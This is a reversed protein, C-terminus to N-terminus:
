FPVKSIAWGTYHIYMYVYIQIAGTIAVLIYINPLPGGGRQSALSGLGRCQCRDGVMCSEQPTALQPNQIESYLGVWITTFILVQFDNM